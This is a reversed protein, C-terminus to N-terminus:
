EVNGLPEGLTEGTYERLGEREFEGVKVGDKDVEGRTVFENKSPAVGEEARM